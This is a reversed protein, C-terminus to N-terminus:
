ADACGAPETALIDFSSQWTRNGAENIANVRTPGIPAGQTVVVTTTFAGKGDARVSAIKLPDNFNWSLKILDNPPWESGRVIVLAGPPGQTPSVSISAALANEALLPSLFLLLTTLAALSLQRRRELTLM